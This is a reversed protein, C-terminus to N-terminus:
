KNIQRETGPSVKEEEKKKKILRPKKPRNKQIVEFHSYCM